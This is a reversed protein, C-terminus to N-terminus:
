AVTAGPPDITTYTGDDYVFGHSQANPLPFSYGGALEGRNNIATVTTTTSDPVDITTVTGNEFVFGHPFPGPPIPFPVTYTGAVEGRDNIAVIPFSTARPVDITSLDYSTPQGRHGEHHEQHHRKSNNHTDDDVPRDPAYASSQSSM